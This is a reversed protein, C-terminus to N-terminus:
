GPSNVGDGVPRRMGCSAAKPFRVRARSGSLGSLADPFVCAGSRNRTRGASRWSSCRPATPAASSGCSLSAIPRCMPAAPARRPKGCRPKTAAKISWVCRPNAFRRDSADRAPRPIELWVAPRSDCPADCCRPIRRATEAPRARALATKGGSSERVARDGPMGHRRESGTPAGAIPKGSPCNASMRDPIMPDNILRRLFGSSDM